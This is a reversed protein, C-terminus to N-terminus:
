GGRAVWTGQALDYYSGYRSYTQDATVIQQYAAQETVLAALIEALTVAATVRRIRAHEVVAGSVLAAADPDVDPPLPVFPSVYGPTAYKAQRSAPVDARLLYHVTVPGVEPATRELVVIARAPMLRAEGSVM